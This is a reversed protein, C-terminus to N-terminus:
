CSTTTTTVNLVFVEGSYIVSLEPQLSDDSPLYDRFYILVPFAEHRQEGPEHLQRITETAVCDDISPTTEDLTPRDCLLSKGTLQFFNRESCFLRSKM